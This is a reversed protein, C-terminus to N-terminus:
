FEKVPILRWIQLPSGSGETRFIPTPGISLAPSVNIVSDENPVRISWLDEGVPTISWAFPPVYFLVDQENQPTIYLGTALSSLTFTNKEKGESIKIRAKDDEFPIFLAPASSAPAGPNPRTAIIARAGVDSVINYIGPTISM